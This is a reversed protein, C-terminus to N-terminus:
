KGAKLKTADPVAAKPAFTTTYPYFLEKAELRGGDARDLSKSFRSTSGVVVSRSGCSTMVAVATWEYESISTDVLCTQTLVDLPRSSVNRIKRRSSGTPKWGGISTGNECSSCPKQAIVRASSIASIARVSSTKMEPMPM